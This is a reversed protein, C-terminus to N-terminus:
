KYHKWVQSPNTSNNYCGLNIGVVSASGTFNINSITNNYVNQIPGASTNTSYIGYFTFSSSGTINSFNNGSITISATSPVNGADYYCLFNGTATVTRTFGTTISNNQVTKTGSASATYHNYILNVAGSSKLSMNNFVNNSITDYKPTGAQYIGNFVGTGGTAGTYNAANSGFTNNSIKLTSTTAAGTNYILACAASTSAANFNLNDFTNYSFSNTGTIAGINYIGYILGVGSSNHNLNQITNGNGLSGITLAGTSTSIIGYLNCTAVTTGTIGISISGSVASGITNGTVTQAGAGAIYIGYFTYGLTVDGVIGIAGINNNQITCATASTLYIPITGTGTTTTTVYIGSSTSAVGTMNGITNGNINVGGARVIIGNFSASGATSVGNSTTWRINNISNGQITSVPSSAVTVDIGTFCGNNNILMGTGASSGYGFTNNSISYGSGSSTVISICKLVSSSTLGTRITTLYFKNSSINWASSNAIINIANAGSNAYWNYISNGTIVNNDNSITTSTGSSTIGSSPPSTGAGADGIKNNSIVNNDNGTTTGTSFLITGAISAVTATNSGLITCNSITDNSADAIFRITSTGATAATSLNSIVLSNSGDNLGNICVKKAGNLNILPAGAVTGSITRIGSPNITLSNWAGANLSNLGPETTVDGTISIIINAGTQTAGNIAGFAGSANTLSTYVGDVGVSGSITIQSYTLGSILLSAILFFLKKM